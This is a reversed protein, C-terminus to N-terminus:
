KKAKELISPNYNKKSYEEQFTKFPLYENRCKHVFFAKKKSEADDAPVAIDKQFGLINKCDNMYRLAARREMDDANVEPTKILLEERRNM